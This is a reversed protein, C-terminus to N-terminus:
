EKIISNSIKRSETAQAINIKYQYNQDYNSGFHCSYLIDLLLSISELSSYGSIKTYSREKTTVRLTIDALKYLSNEGISTIAIIPVHNKKLYGATTLLEGSEGSYSICVACDSSTSMLAAQYMMNHVPYIEAKKGIRRLKYVFEEALYNLNAICFVKVTDKNKILQTAKLLSDHEILALTDNLSEQKLQTIKRAINMISDTKNFPLNADMDQFNSKLYLVENLYAKKFESFGNFGLKKSIRVLISPSTYTEGAIRTTSYDAIEEQKSLIFNVVIKESPSFRPQEMKEHLLM